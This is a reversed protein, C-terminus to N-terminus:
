AIADALDGPELDAHHRAEPQRPDEGSRAGLFTKDDLGLVYHPLGVASDMVNAAIM